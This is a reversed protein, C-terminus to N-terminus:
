FGRRKATTYIYTTLESDRVGNKTVVIHVEYIPNTILTVVQTYRYGPYYDGFTDSVSGEEVGDSAHGYLLSAVMGATPADKRLSSAARLWQSMIGLIGFTCIFFITSAIMVEALTFALSGRRSNTTNSCTRM